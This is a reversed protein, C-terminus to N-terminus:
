RIRAPLRAQLSEVVRLSSPAETTITLFCVSFVKTRDSGLSIRRPGQRGSLREPAASQVSGPGSTENTISCTSSSIEHGLQPRRAWHSPADREDGVHVQRDVAERIRAEGPLFVAHLTDIIVAGSSSRPAAHDGADRGLVAQEGGPRGLPRRALDAVSPGDFLHGALQATVPVGHVVGDGGVARREERGIALAHTCVM